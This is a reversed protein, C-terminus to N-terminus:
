WEWDADAENAFEPWILKDEGLAAIAKSAEAWGQRPSKKPHPLERNRGHVLAAARDEPGAHKPSLKSSPTKPSNGLRRIKTSM